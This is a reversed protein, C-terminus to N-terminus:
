ANTNHKIGIARNTYDVTLLYETTDPATSLSPQKKSQEYDNSLKVLNSDIFECHDCSNSRALVGEGEKYLFNGINWIPNTTVRFCVTDGITFTTSDSLRRVSHISHLPSKLLDGETSGYTGFTGDRHKILRIDTTSFETIEWDPTDISLPQANVNTLKDFPFERYEQQGDSPRFYRVTASNKFHYCEKIQGKVKVGKTIGSNPKDFVIMEFEVFDGAHFQETYTTSPNLASEIAKSVSGGENAPIMKSLRMIYEVNDADANQCTISKVVIREPLSEKSEPILEFWDPNNEVFDKKYWSLATDIKNGTRHSKYDYCDNGDFELITGAKADPLDKILRYRKDQEM